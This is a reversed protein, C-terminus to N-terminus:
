PPTPRRRRDPGHRFSLEGEAGEAAAHFNVLERAVLREVWENLQPLEAEGGLLAALGARSFREGFISAARLIRKADDGEADLRAQVMGLISDPLSDSRGERAARVLEELYLPNGDARGVIAGVTDAPTEPGLAERVLREGAKRSLPGLEVQLPRSAAWLDPFTDRM